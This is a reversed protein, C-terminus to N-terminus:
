DDEIETIYYLPQEPQVVQLFLRHFKTLFEQTVDAKLLGILVAYAELTGRKNKSINQSDIYKLEEDTNTGPDTSPNLAHNYIQKSGAKLEDDTLTRLTKQIELNKEWTPGYQFIISFLNYKFRNLDSSAIIDNAYKGYLLYFLTMASNDTISIPIGINNYDTIFKDVSDYVDTFKLQRYSGYLSGYYDKFMEAMKLREKMLLLAM